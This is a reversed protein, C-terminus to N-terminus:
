LWVLCFSEWWGHTMTRDSGNDKLLCQTMGIVELRSKPYSYNFCMCELLFYVLKEEQQTNPHKLHRSVTGMM